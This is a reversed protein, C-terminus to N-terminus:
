SRVENLIEKIDAMAEKSTFNGFESDDIWLGEYEEVELYPKFSVDEMEINPTEGVYAIRIPREQVEVEWEELAKESSCATLFFVFFLAICLRM